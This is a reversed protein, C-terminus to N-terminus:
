RKLYHELLELSIPQPKGNSEIINTNIGRAITSKIHALEGHSVPEWNDIKQLLDYAENIHTGGAFAIM